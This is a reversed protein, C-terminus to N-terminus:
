RALLSALVPAAIGHADIGYRKAATRQDIGLYEGVEKATLLRRGDTFSLIDALMPRYTEKERGM